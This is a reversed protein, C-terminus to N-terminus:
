CYVILIEIYYIDIVFVVFERTLTELTWCTILNKNTLQVITKRKRHLIEQTLFVLTLLKNIFFCVDSELKYYICISEMIGAELYNM